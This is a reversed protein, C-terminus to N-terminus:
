RATPNAPPLPLRNRWNRWKRLQATAHRAIPVRDFWRNPYCDSRSSRQWGLNPSSFLTLVEPRRYRFVSLAGDYCMPGGDPHGPPRQLLSELFEVLWSIAPQGIGYFHSCMTSATSTVFRDPSSPLDKIVHGLYVFAWPRTSLTQVVGAEIAPFEPVIELDDEMVLVRQAGQRLATRLIELHGLFCGRAGITPFGGADNPRIAPFFELKGPDPSMGIRALMRTMEHRRDAREPLNLIYTRSFYDHLRV